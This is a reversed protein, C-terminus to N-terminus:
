PWPFAGAVARQIVTRGTYGAEFADALAQCFAPPYIGLREWWDAENGGLNAHQAAPGTRHCVTCLPATRRDHARESHGFARWGAAALGIKIHAVEVPWTLRGRCACAVCPLKAVFGLFAKDRIRPERQRIEGQPAIRSM